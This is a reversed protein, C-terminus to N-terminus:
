HKGEAERVRDVYLYGNIHDVEHQVIRANFGKLKLVQERGKRDTFKVTATKHRALEKYQGPISLCGEEITVMEDGMELIEPNIMDVVAQHDTDYNFCCVVVRINLGIQPAALGVGRATFMTDKMDDLLKCLKKDIKTIKACEGRLIKNSEGKEIPLLAM